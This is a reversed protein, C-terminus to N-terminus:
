DTRPPRAQGDSLSCRGDSWMNQGGSYTKALPKSAGISPLRRIMGYDLCSVQCRLKWSNVFTAAKM